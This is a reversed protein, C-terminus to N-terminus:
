SIEERGQYKEFGFEDIYAIFDTIPSDAAPSILFVWSEVGMADKTAREFIFTPDGYAGSSPKSVIRLAGGQWVIKPSSM